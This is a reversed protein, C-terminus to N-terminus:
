KVLPINSNEQLFQSNEQGLLMDLEGEHIIQIYVDPMHADVSLAGDTLQNEYTVECFTASFYPTLQIKDWERSCEILVSLGSGGYGGNLRSIVCHDTADNVSYRETLQNTLSVTYNTIIKRLGIQQAIRRGNTYHTAFEIEGFALRHESLAPDMGELSSIVSDYLFYGGYANISDETNNYRVGAVGDDKMVETLDMFSTVGRSSLYGSLVSLRTAEASDGLYDPLYEGCATYTSPIVVLRYEVGKAAYEAMRTRLNWEIERMQSETFPTGSVYDMLYDFGSEPDQIEFLWQDKGIIVNEDDVRRFFSYDLNRRFTKISESASLVGNVRFFGGSEVDQGSILGIGTYTAASLLIGFFLVVCVFQISQKKM